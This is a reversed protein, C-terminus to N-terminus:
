TGSGNGNTSTIVGDPLNLAVGARAIEYILAKSNAVKFIRCLNGIHERVTPENIKCTRAIAKYPLGKVHEALVRMQAPTIRRADLAISPGTSGAPRAGHMFTAGVELASLAAKFISAGGDSHKSLYGAAGEGIWDEVEPRVLMESSMIIVPITDYTDSQKLWRLIQRGVSIDGEFKIDLFIMDPANAAVQAKADQFSKAHFVQIQPDISALQLAAGERFIGEDDILLIKRYQM